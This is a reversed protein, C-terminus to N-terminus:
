SDPRYLRFFFCDIPWCGTGKRIIRTVICSYKMYQNCNKEMGDKLRELDWENCLLRIEQPVACLEIESNYKISDGKIVRSNIINFPNRKNWYIMNNTYHYTDILELILITDNVNSLDIYEKLVYNIKRLRNNENIQQNFLVEPQLDKICLKQMSCISDSLTIWDYILPRNESRNEVQQKKVEDNVRVQHSSSINQANAITTLLALAIIISIQKM